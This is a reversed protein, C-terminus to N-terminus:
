FTRFSLKGHYQKQSAQTGHGFVVPEVEEEHTGFMRDWVTLMEGYNKDIYKSPAGAHHVRHTSPTVFFLSIYHMKSVLRTHTFFGYIKEMPFIIIYLEPPCFLALPAYFAASTIRQIAGQSLNVSFLDCCSSFTTLM